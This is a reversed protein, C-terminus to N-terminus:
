ENLLAPDPDVQDPEFDLDEDGFFCVLEVVVAVGAAFVVVRSNAEFEGLFAWMLAIDLDVVKQNFLERVSRLMSNKLLAGDDEM